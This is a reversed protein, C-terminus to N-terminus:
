HMVALFIFGVNNIQEKQQAKMMKQKQGKWREEQRM